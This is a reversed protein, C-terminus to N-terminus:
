PDVDALAECTEEVFQILSVGMQAQPSDPYDAALQSLTVRDRGARVLDCLAADPVGYRLRAIGLQSHARERIESRGTHAAIFEIAGTIVWPLLSELTPATKAWTDEADEAVDTEPVGQIWRHLVARLERAPVDDLSNLDRCRPAVDAALWLLWDDAQPLQGWQDFAEVFEHARDATAERIARCSPLSLGSRYYASAWARDGIDAQLRTARTVAATLLADRRHPPLTPWWLTRGLAAELERRLDGDATAAAEVIAAILVADLSRVQGAENEQGWEGEPLEDLGTENAAHRILLRLANTLASRTPTPSQGFASRWMRVKDQDGCMVILTGTAYRGGRGARGGLNHLRALNPRGRTMSPYAAIVTRTPFDVGELLTSTCVVCRLLNRRAAAEVAKKVATPVDAHHVAVGTRLKSAEEPHAADLQQAYRELEDPPDAWAGLADEVAGALKPIYAKKDSFVVVLGDATRAAALAAAEYTRGRKCDGGSGVSLIQQRDGRESYLWGVGDEWHYTFRDLWAPTWSSVIPDGDLWTTYDEVDPFQSSILVVRVDRRLARAVALEVRAGREPAEVIHAEDVILAKLEGLVNSDGTQSRRWDLDFREPTMVAIGPDNLVGGATPTATDYDLGGYSARVTDSRASLARRLDSTLQAVLARTPALVAVVGNPHRDLTDAALLEILNTKGASTPMKIVKSRENPDLLGAVLARAQSPWFATRSRRVMGQAVTMVHQGTAGAAACMRIPHRDLRYEIATGTLRVAEGLATGDAHTTAWREFRARLDSTDDGAKWADGVVEILQDLRTEGTNEWAREVNGTLLAALVREADDDAHSLVQHARAVALGDWGALYWLAAECVGAGRGAVAPPTSRAASAAVPAAAGAPLSGSSSENAAPDLDRYSLRAAREYLDAVREGLDPVDIIHLQEVPLRDAWAREITSVRTKGGPVVVVAHRRHTPYDGDPNTLRGLLHAAALAYMRQHDPHARMLDVGKRWASTLVADDARGLGAGIENLLSGTLKSTRAKVEVLTPTIEDPELGVALVDSGQVTADAVPKLDLKNFPVEVGLRERYLAAALLEGFDGLRVTPSTPLVPSVGADPHARAQMPTVYASALDRLLEDDRVRDLDLHWRTALLRSDILATERIM